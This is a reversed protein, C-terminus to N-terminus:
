VHKIERQVNKKDNKRQKEKGSCLNEVFSTCVVCAYLRTWVTATTKVSESVRESAIHTHEIVQADNQM